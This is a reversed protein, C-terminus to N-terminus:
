GLYGLGELRARLAADDDEQGPASGAAPAAEPLLGPRAGGVVEAHPAGDIDPPVALGLGAFLTPFVNTMPMPDPALGPAVGAGAWCFVGMRRHLGRSPHPMPTAVPGGTRRGLYVGDAPVLALLPRHGPADPASAFVESGRLVEAFAPGGDPLRWALLREALAATDGDDLPAGGGRYLLGLHDGVGLLVRTAALDLQLERNVEGGRLGQEEPGLNGAAARVRRRIRVALGDGVEDSRALGGTAGPLPRALGWEALLNNVQVHWRGDAGGHDSVLLGLGDDGGTAELLLGALVDVGEYVRRLADREEATAGDPDRVVDWAVHHLLDTEQCQVVLLRAPGDELLLRLAAARREVHGVLTEMYALRAAPDRGDPHREPHVPSYGPIRARLRDRVGAPSAWDSDDGPADFGSVVVGHRLPPPPYTMPLNLCLVRAGQRDAAAPMTEGRISHSRVLVDRGTRPDYQVFGLVGHRPFWTGTLFTTWSPPTLPNIWPDLAGRRGRALMRAVHPMAFRGAFGELLELNEGDLCLAFGRREIM